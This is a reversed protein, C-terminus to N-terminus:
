HARSAGVPSALRALERADRVADREPPAAEIERSGFDVAPGRHQRGGLLSARRAEAGVRQSPAPDRASRRQAANEAEDQAHRGDVNRNRSPLAAARLQAADVGIEVEVDRVGAADGQDADQLSVSAIHADADVDLARRASYSGIAECAFEQRRAFAGRDGVEIRFCAASAEELVPCALFRHALSGAVSQERRESLDFNIEVGRGAEDATRRGVLGRRPRQEGRRNRRPM